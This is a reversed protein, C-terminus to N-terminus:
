VMKKFDELPKDYGGMDTVEYALDSLRLSEAQEQTVALYWGVKTDRMNEFEQFDETSM